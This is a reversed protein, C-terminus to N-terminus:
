PQRPPPMFVANSLPQAEEVLRVKLGDPDLIAVLAKRIKIQDNEIDSYYKPAYIQRKLYDVTLDYGVAKGIERFLDIRLDTYRENWRNPNEDETVVHDLLAKWARRIKDDSNKSFVVDISNLAEVHAPAIPAARTSMLTLYVHMRQNSKQRLHDLARQALLALIPGVVIAAVTLWDFWSPQQTM